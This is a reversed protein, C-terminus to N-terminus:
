VHTRLIWKLHGGYLWLWMNEVLNCEIIVVIEALNVGNTNGFWFVILRSKPWRQSAIIITLTVLVNKSKFRRRCGIRELAQLRKKGFWPNKGQHVRQNSPWKNPEDHLNKAKINLNIYAKKCCTYKRQGNSCKEARDRSPPHEKEELQINQWMKEISRLDIYHKM